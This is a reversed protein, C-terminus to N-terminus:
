DHYCRRRSALGLDRVCTYIAFAVILWRVIYMLRVEYELFQYVCHRRLLFSGHSLM